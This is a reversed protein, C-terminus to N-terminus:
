APRTLDGKRLYLCLTAGALRQPPWFGSGGERLGSGGLDLCGCLPKAPLASPRPLCAMGPPVCPPRLAGLSDRERREAEQPEPRHDQTPGWPSQLPPLCHFVSVCMCGPGLWIKPIILSKAQDLAKHLTLAGHNAAQGGWGGRWQTACEGASM